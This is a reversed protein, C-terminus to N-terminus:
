THPQCQAVRCLCWTRRAAGRHCAPLERPISSSGCPEVHGTSAHSCRFAGNSVNRHAVLSWRNGHLVLHSLRGDRNCNCVPVVPSPVHFDVVLLVYRHCQDERYCFCLHCQCDEFSQIFGSLLVKYLFSDSVDFAIYETFHQWHSVVVMNTCTATHHHVFSAIIRYMIDVVFNINPEM